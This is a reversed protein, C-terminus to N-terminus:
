NSFQTLTLFVALKSVPQLNVCHKNQAFVAPFYPICSSPLDVTDKMVRICGIIYQSYEIVRVTGFFEFELQPLNTKLTYPAISLM